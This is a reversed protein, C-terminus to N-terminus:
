ALYQLPYDEHGTGPNGVFGKRGPNVAGEKRSDAGDTFGARKGVPSAFPGTLIKFVAAAPM